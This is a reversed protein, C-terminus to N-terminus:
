RLHTKLKKPFQTEDKVNLKPIAVYQLTDEFKLHKSLREIDSKSISYRLGSLDFEIAKAKGNEYVSKMAYAGWIGCAFNNLKRPLLIKM